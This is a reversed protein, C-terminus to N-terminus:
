GGPGRLEIRTADDDGLIVVVGDAHTWGDNVLLYTATDRQHLLRLGRTTWGTDTEEETVGPADVSLPAETHVVVVPRAALWGPASRGLEEGRAIAVDNIVWFLCLLLLVAVLSRRVGTRWSPPDPPDGRRRDLERGVAVADASVLVGVGLAAPFWVGGLAGTLRGVLLVVAPLVLWAWRAIRVGRGLWGRWTPDDVRRHVQDSAWTGALGVVAVAFLPGVLADVSRLLHDRTTFGFIADDLGMVHAQTATRRWGFFVVVATLVTVNTVIGIVARLAADHSASAPGADPPASV